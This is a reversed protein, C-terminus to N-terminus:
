VNSTILRQGDDDDELTSGVEFMHKGNNNSSNNAGIRDMVCSSTMPVLAFTLVQIGAVVLLGNEFGIADYAMGGFLTGFSTGFIEGIMWLSTLMSRTQESDPAIKSGSSLMCTLTTIFTAAIGTGVISLGVASTYPSTPIVMNLGPVPGMLCLGVVAACAGFILGYCKPVGRDLLWGFFPTFIAYTIGEMSFIIGTVTSNLSFNASLFREFTPLVWAVSMESVIVIAFCGAIAPDKFLQKYKTTSQDLAITPNNRQSPVFKPVTLAVCSNLVILTGTIVFPLSFGGVDYLFGGFSPGIMMGVGFSTEIVSLMTARYRRSVAGTALPYVSSFIASYGISSLALIFLSLGFFLRPNDAHKLGSFSLNCLGSLLLGIVFLKRSGIQTIFKGFLPMFVIQTIYSAFFVVGSQWVALGKDTAEKTYFPSFISTAVGGLFTSVVFNGVETYFTWPPREDSAASSSSDESRTSELSSSTVSSSDSGSDKRSGDYRRQQQEQLLQQRLLPESESEM